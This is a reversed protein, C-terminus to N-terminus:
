ARADGASLFLGSCRVDRCPLPAPVPKGSRSGFLPLWLNQTVYAGGAVLALIVLLSLWVVKKRAGEYRTTLENLQKQQSNQETKLNRIIVSQSPLRQGKGAGAAPAHPLKPLLDRQTSDSLSITEAGRARRRLLFAPFTRLWRSSGHQRLLDLYDNGIQM